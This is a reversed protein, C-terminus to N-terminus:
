EDPEEAAALRIAASLGAPTMGAIWTVQPRLRYILGENRELDVALVSIDPYEDVLREAIPPLVGGSMGVVVVDAELEGALLLTEIEDSGGSVVQLDAEGQIAQIATQVAAGLVTQTGDLLV